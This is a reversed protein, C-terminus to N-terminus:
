IQPPRLVLSLTTAGIHLYMLGGSVDILFVRGFTCACDFGCRSLAPYTIVHHHHHQMIANESKENSTCAVSGAGAGAGASAGEGPPVGCTCGCAADKAFDAAEVRM